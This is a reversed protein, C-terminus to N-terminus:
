APPQDSNWMLRAYKWAGGSQSKMIVLWSGTDEIPAGGAKPTFTASYTGRVFAWEGTFVMESDQSAVRVTMQSFLTEAWTKVAPRGVLPPANPPMSVADETFLGAYAVADGIACIQNYEALLSRISEVDKSNM